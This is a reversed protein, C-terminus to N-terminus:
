IIILGKLIKGNTYGTDGCAECSCNCRSRLGHEAKRWLSLAILYYGQQVHIECGCNREEANRDICFCKEKNLRSVTLKWNVLRPVKQVLQVVFDIFPQFAREYKFSTQINTLFSLKTLM